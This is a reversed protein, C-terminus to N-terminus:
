EIIKAIAGGGDVDTQHSGVAGLDVDEAVGGRPQFLDGVAVVEPAPRTPVAQEDAGGRAPLRVIMKFQRDGATHECRDRICM